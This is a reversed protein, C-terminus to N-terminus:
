ETAKKVLDLLTGKEHYPIVIYSYHSFHHGNIILTSTVDNSSVCVEAKVICPHNILHENVEKEKLFEYVAHNIYVKIAYRISSTIHLASVVMISDKKHLIEEIYYKNNIIGIFRTNTQM